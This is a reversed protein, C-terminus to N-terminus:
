RCPSGLYMVNAENNWSFENLELARGNPTFRFPGHETFFGILSSCGPGALM